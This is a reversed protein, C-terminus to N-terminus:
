FIGHKNYVLWESAAKEEVFCTSVGDDPNRSKAMLM